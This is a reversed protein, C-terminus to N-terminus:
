QAVLAVTPSTGSLWARNRVTARVPFAGPQAPRVRLTGTFLGDGAAPDGKRGDDRLSGARRFGRGLDAELKVKRAGCADFVRVTAAVTSRVGAPVVAPSLSPALLTPPM